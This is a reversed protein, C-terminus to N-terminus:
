WGRATKFTYPIEPSDIPLRYKDPNEHNYLATPFNVVVATKEGINHVGHWVGIPISLAGRRYESFFIESVLGNTVSDPRDDYLVVVLEGYLIAYRDEHARHVNWAKIKGPRVEFCYSYTLPEDHFGWRPDFLEWLAGRDDVHTRTERFRVGEPLAATPVGEPSVTQQDRKPDSM